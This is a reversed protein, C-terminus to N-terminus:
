KVIEYSKWDNIDGTGRYRPRGPYECMPRSRGFTAKNIDIGPTVPPPVGHEVWNDLIALNDWTVSFKGGGHALGPVLYFRLFEAVRDAGM